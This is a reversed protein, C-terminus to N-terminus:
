FTVIETRGDWNAAAAKIREFMELYDPTLAAVELLLGLNDDFEYYDVESGGQVLVRQALTAGRSKMDDRASGIDDTLVCFHQVGTKHQDRFEQFISPTLPKILEIQLDGSYALALDISIPAREGRYEGELFDIRGVKFFPGVNLRGTWYRIGQDVDDVIFAAQLIPGYPRKAM